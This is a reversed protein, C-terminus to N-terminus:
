GVLARYQLSVILGFLVHLVFLAVLTLPGELMERPRPFAHLLAPVIASAILGHIAGFMIGWQYDPSGIGQAWLWGYLVGFLAGFTFHLALGLVAAKGGPELFWTGLVGALNVRPLGIVPLMSHIITTAAVGVIGSIMAAGVDM